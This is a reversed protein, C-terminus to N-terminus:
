MHTSSMPNSKVISVKLKYSEYLVQESALQTNTERVTIAYFIQPCVTWAQYNSRGTPSKM